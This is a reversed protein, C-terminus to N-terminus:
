QLKKIFRVIMETQIQLNKKKIVFNRANQARMKYEAYDGMLIAYLKKYYGEVSEDDIYNLYENYCRPIGKLKTSIVPTGTLLYELIKSPFSYKTYEGNTPRPNILFDAQKQFQAVKDNPLMGLYHIQPFKSNEMIIENQYDGQGCFWLEVHPIELKKFGAILTGLGYEKNLSGTYLIVKKRLVGTTELNHEKAEVADTDVMGEVVLYPRRNKNIQENMYESLLIYGDFCEHLWTSVKLMINLLCARLLSSQADFFRFRPIETVLIVSRIGFLKCILLIPLLVPPNASYSIMYKNKNKRANLWWKVTEYLSGCAFMIQKIILINIFPIQKLVVNEAISINNSKWWIKKNGPYARVPIVSIATINVNGNLYFGKFLMKELKEQAYSMPVTQNKVLTDFLENGCYCGNYLIETKQKALGNAGNNIRLIINIM